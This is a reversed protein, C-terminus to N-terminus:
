WTGDVHFSLFRGYTKDLQGFMRFIHYDIGARLKGYAERADGSKDAPLEKVVM